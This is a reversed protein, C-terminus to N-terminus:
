VRSLVIKESKGANSGSVGLLIALVVPVILAVNWNKSFDFVAGIIGPGFFSIAYGVSQTMISLSRTEDSNSSRMVTILLSLPFTISLCISMILLWFTLHWGHDYILGLFSICMLGSLGVLVGRLNALQSAYHPAMIGIASGLFGTLAVMYGADSLSYGKSHLITPLWTATGYFIMSQVGFFFALNWTPWSKFTNIHFKSPELKKSEVACQRTHRLWWVTPIGALVIFPVMSFRWSWRTLHSLPVAVAIAGSAFVGMLTIYIGTLLGSHKPDNEKVWVPLSFNLIAVAIGLIFSAVFLFALNGVTRVVLAGTLTALAFAIIRNTGGLKSVIPMLLGTGAFCLISLSTLFSAAFSSIHYQERLLPILPNIITLGARMSIAAIFIPVGQRISQRTSLNQESM